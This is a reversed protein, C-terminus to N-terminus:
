LKGENQFSKSQRKSSRTPSIASKGVRHQVLSNGVRVYRRKSEKLWDAILLDIAQSKSEQWERKWGRRYFSLLSASDGVPLYFCVCCMFSGGSLWHEERPPGALYYQFPVGEGYRAKMDGVRAEVIKRFDIPVIADDEIHVAEEGGAMELALMFTDAASHKRDRAVILGPIRSLLYDLYHERGKCTRVIIKM